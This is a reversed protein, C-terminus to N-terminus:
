EIPRATMAALASVLRDSVRGSVPLKHEREFKEIAASTAEDLMGSPTVQGYGFESLVRQVALIRPSPGILDAIPDNRRPAPMPIPVAQAPAATVSHTPTTDVNRPAVQPRTEGTAAQHAPNAFFPAPQSGSQLFVANVVIVTTMAAAALIAFSDVPRQAVTAWAGAVLSAATGSGRARNRRDNRRERV